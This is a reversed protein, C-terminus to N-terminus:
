GNGMGGSVGVIRQPQQLRNLSIKLLNESFVM